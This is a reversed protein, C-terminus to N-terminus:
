GPPKCWTPHSLNSSLASDEQECVLYPFDRCSQYPFDSCYRYRWLCNKLQGCKPSHTIYLQSLVVSTTCMLTVCILVSHGLSKKEGRGLHSVLCSSSIIMLFNQLMQGDVRLHSLPLLTQDQGVSHGLLPPTVAPIPVFPFPHM